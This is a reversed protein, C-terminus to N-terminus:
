GFKWNRVRDDSFTRVPPSVVLPHGKLVSNWVSPFDAGSRAAASCRIALDHRNYGLVGSLGEVDPVV